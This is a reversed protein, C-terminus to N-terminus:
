CTGGTLLGGSFVLTCSGTGAANRVTVTASIGNNGDPAVTGSSVNLTQAWLTTWRRASSGFNYTTSVLPTLSGDVQVAGSITGGGTTYCTPCSLTRNASLDGGGSLPASTAITRTATVGAAGWTGNGSTDTATWVQGVTSSTGLKVTGSADLAQTWVTSWRKGSEGLEAGGNVAPDIASTVTALGIFATWPAGSTGLTNSSAPVINGTVTGSINLNTIWANNFRAASAGLERTGSTGGPYIDGHLTMRSLAIDWTQAASGAPNFLTLVNSSPSQWYFFNSGTGDVHVELKRSASYSTSSGISRFGVDAVVANTSFTKGGSITQTTGLTVRDNLQTQIAATVGDLYGLETTSISTNLTGTFSLNGSILAAGDVELRNVDNTCGICLNGLRSLNMRQTLTATAGGSGSPATYLKLDGATLQFVAGPGTNLLRWNTGDFRLNDTIDTSASGGDLANFVTFNGIALRGQPSSQNIGVNGTNFHINSGSTTWQSTGPTAWGGSGDTGTATWVQGVVSSSKLQVTGTAVIDTFWGKNFPFGSRGISSTNTTQPAIYGGSAMEVFRTWTVNYNRTADGLDHTVDADPQLKKTNTTTATLNGSLSTAIVNVGHINTWESGSAGLSPRTTDTVADGAGTSRLSPILDTFLNTRNAATGSEARTVVAWRSGAPDRHTLIANGAMSAAGALDWFGSGGANDSIELKRTNDIRSFVVSPRTGTEGIAHTNDTGFRLDGSLTTVGAVALTSSLTAAGAARFTGNVETTFSTGTCGVCLSGSQSFNLRQTLTATAGSTGSPATFIKFAGGIMQVLEGAGTNLYKWDTGDFRLNNAIDSSASGGDLANFITYAGIALRGQPSSQNIGVNGASYHINSGSTTWQSSPVAAWGGNGSTDTATWVHGATSSTGLKVTGAFDVDYGWIKGMRVSSSGMPTGGDTGGAFATTATITGATASGATLANTITAADGWISLWRASTNGLAPMATDNVADGDATARQAPRLEGFVRLYNAASSAEQRVAQLARSGGNDRLTWASTVTTANARQDWFSTGGLIDAIELKRVKTYAAAVGGPAANINEVNLTQFYNTADGIDATSPSTTLIHSSITATGTISAGASSLNLRQTITATNGATGSPATFFKLEGGILQLVGAAGTNLYRWNPSDYRLNNAVDSSAGGGDLANVITYDGISLRGLPTATGIGVNGTSRYVDGGSATWVGGSGSCTAFSLVGATTSVLCDGNNAAKAAPLTLTYSASAANPAKLVIAKNDARTTDFEIQGVATGDTTPIIRIQNSRFQACLALPLLATLILKRM